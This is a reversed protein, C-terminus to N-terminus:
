APPRRRGGVLLDLSRRDGAIARQHELLREDKFDAADIAGTDIEIL